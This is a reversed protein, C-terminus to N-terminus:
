KLCRTSRCLHRLSTAKEYATVGPGINKKQVINKPDPAKGTERKYKEVSCVRGRHKDRSAQQQQVAVREEFLDRGDSRGVKGNNEICREILKNRDASFKEEAGVDGEALYDMWTQMTHEPDAFEVTKPCYWCFSGQARNDPGRYNWKM